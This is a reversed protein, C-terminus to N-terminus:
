KKDGFTLVLIPVLAKESATGVRQFINGEITLRVATSFM